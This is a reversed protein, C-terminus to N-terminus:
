SPFGRLVHDYRMTFALFSGPLAEVQASLVTSTREKIREGRLKPIRTERSTGFSTMRRCGAVVQALMFAGKKGFQGCVQKTDGVSLWRDLRSEELGGVPMPQLQELADISWATM